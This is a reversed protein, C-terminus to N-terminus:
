VCHLNVRPVNHLIDKVDLIIISYVQRRLAILIFLKSEFVFLHRKLGNIGGRLLDHHNVEDIQQVFLGSPLPRHYSQLVHRLVLFLLCPDLILLFEFVDSLPALVVLMDLATKLM